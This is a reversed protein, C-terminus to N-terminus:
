RVALALVDINNWEAYLQLTKAETDYVYFECPSYLNVNLQAAVFIFGGDEFVKAELIWHEADSVISALAEKVSANAETERGNADYISLSGFNNDAEAFTARYVTVADPEFTEFYESVSNPTLIENYITGDTTDQIQVLVTPGEEAFLSTCWFHVVFCLCLMTPLFFFLRAVWSKREAKEMNTIVPFLFALTNAITLFPLGLTLLFGAGEWNEMPIMANPNSVYHPNILYRALCYLLCLVGAINLMAVFFNFIRKGM